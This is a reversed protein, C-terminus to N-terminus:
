LSHVCMDVLESCGERTGHKWGAIRMKFWSLIDTLGMVWGTVMDRTMLASATGVYKWDARIKSATRNIHCKCWTLAFVM